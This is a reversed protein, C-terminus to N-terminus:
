TREHEEYFYYGPRNEYGEPPTKTDRVYAKAEDETELLFCAEDEPIDICRYVILYMNNEKVFSQHPWM